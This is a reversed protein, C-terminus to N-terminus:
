RFILVVWAVVEASLIVGLLIVVGVGAAVGEGTSRGAKDYANAFVGLLLFLSIAGGILLGAFQMTVGLIAILVLSIITMGMVGFSYGWAQDKSLGPRVVISSPLSAEAPTAAQTSPAASKDAAPSALAEVPLGLEDAARQTADVPLGLDNAASPPAADTRAGPALKPDRVLATNFVAYPILVAAALTAVCCSCCSTCTTGGGAASQLAHARTEFPSPMRQM